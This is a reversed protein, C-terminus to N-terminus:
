AVQDVLVKLFSFMFDNVVAIKVPIITRPVAAQALSSGFFAPHSVQVVAGAASASTLFASAGFVLFTQTSLCPLSPLGTISGLVFFGLCVQLSTLTRLLCSPM